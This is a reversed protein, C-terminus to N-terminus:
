ERAYTHLQDKGNEKKNLRKASADPVVFTRQQHWFFSRFREGLGFPPILRFTKLFTQLFLNHWASAM